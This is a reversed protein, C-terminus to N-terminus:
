PPYCRFKERIVEGKYVSVNLNLLYINWLIITPFMDSITIVKELTELIFPTIQEYINNISKQLM